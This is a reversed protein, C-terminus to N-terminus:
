KVVEDFHQVAHCKCCVATQKKTDIHFKNYTCMICQDHNIARM